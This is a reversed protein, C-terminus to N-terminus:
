SQSIQIIESPELTCPSDWSVQDKAWPPHTYSPGSYIIWIFSINPPTSKVPWKLIPISWGRVLAESSSWSVDVWVIKYWLLCYEKLFHLHDCMKNSRQDGFKLVGWQSEQSSINWWDFITNYYNSKLSNFFVESCQNIQIIKDGFLSITLVDFHWCRECKHLIKLKRCM